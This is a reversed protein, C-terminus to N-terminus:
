LSNKPGHPDMVTQFNMQKPVAMWGDRLTNDFNTVVKWFCITHSKLKIIGQQLTYYPIIPSSHKPDCIRPSNKCLTCGTAFLIKLRRTTDGVCHLKDSAGCNSRVSPLFCLDSGFHVWSVLVSSPAGPIDQLGPAAALRHRSWRSPSTRLTSPCSLRPPPLTPPTSHWLVWEM